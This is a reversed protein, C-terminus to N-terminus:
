CICWITSNELLQWNFGRVSLQEFTCQAMCAGNGSKPAQPQDCLCGSERVDECAHDAALNHLLDQGLQQRTGAVPADFHTGQYTVDDHMSGGTLALGAGPRDLLTIGMHHFGQSCANMSFFPISMILSSPAMVASTSLTPARARPACMDPQAEPTRTPEDWRSIHTISELGSVGFCMCRCVCGKTKKLGGPAPRLGWAAPPTGPLCSWASPTSRPTPTTSSPQIGETGARLKLTGLQQAHVSICLSLWRRSPQNSGQQQMSSADPSKGCTGVHMCSISWWRIWGDGGKSEWVKGVVPLQHLLGLPTSVGLEHLLDQDLAQSAVLTSAPPSAQYPNPHAQPANLPISLAPAPALSLTASLPICLPKSCPVLGQSHLVILPHGRRYPARSVGIM